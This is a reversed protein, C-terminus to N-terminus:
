MTVTFTATVISAVVAYTIPGRGSTTSVGASSAAGNHQKGMRECNDEHLELPTSDVTNVQTRQALWQSSPQGRTNEVWHRRKLVISEFQDSLVAQEASPSTNPGHPALRSSGIRVRVQVSSSSFWIQSSQRMLRGSEQVRFLTKNTTARVAPCPTVHTSPLRRTAATLGFSRAESRCWM